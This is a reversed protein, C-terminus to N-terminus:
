LCFLNWRSTKKSGSNAYFFSLPQTLFDDGKFDTSEEEEISIFHARCGRSSPTPTQAVQRWSRRTSRRAAISSPVADEGADSEKPPEAEGQRGAAAPPFNVGALGEVVGSLFCWSDLEQNEASRLPPRPLLLFVERGTEEESSAAAAARTCRPMDGSFQRSAGRGCGPPSSSRRCSLIDGADSCWWRWQWPPPREPKAKHKLGSAVAFGLLFRRERTDSNLKESSSGLAAGAGGRGRCRTPAATPGASPWSREHFSTSRPLNLHCSQWFPQQNRRNDEFCVYM